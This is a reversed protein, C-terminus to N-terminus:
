SKFLNDLANRTNMPTQINRTEGESEARKNARAEAKTVIEEGITKEPINEFDRNDSFISMSNSPLNQGTVPPPEASTGTNIIGKHVQNPDSHKDQLEQWQTTKMALNHEEQAKKSAKIKEDGLQISAQRTMAESDWITNPNRISGMFKGTANDNTGHEPNYGAPIVQHSALQNILDDPSLRTTGQPHAIARDLHNCFKQAAREMKKGRLNEKDVQVAFKALDEANIAVKSREAAYALEAAIFELQDRQINDLSAATTSSFFDNVQPTEPAKATKKLEIDKSLGDLLSNFIDNNFNHGSLKM